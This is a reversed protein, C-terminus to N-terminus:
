ASTEEDTLHQLVQDLADLAQDFDFDDLAQRVGAMRGDGALGRELIALAEDDLGGRQVAQRLR